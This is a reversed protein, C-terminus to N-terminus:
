SVIASADRGVPASRALAAATEGTLPHRWAPAIQALPGMVFRREAARPHPLILAQTDSVERGYAVLDLDLTRAANRAQRNRGFEVELQHLSRLVQPASASTEVIAVGNIYDPQTPDPWAASRWWSSRAVPRLGVAALRVLAAEVIDLSSGAEGGLNSGIAIVVADDWPSRTQSGPM